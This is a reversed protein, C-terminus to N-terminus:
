PFIYDKELERINSTFVIFSSSIQWSESFDKGKRGGFVIKYQTSDHTKTIIENCRCFKQKKIIVLSNLWQITLLNAAVDM